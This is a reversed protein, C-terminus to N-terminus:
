AKGVAGDREGWVFECGAQREGGGRWLRQADADAQDAGAAAVLSQREDQGTRNGHMMCPRHGHPSHEGSCTDPVTDAEEGRGVRASCSSGVYQADERHREPQLREEAACTRWRRARAGVCPDATDVGTSCPQPRFVPTWGARGDRAAKARAISMTDRSTLRMMETSTGDSIPFTRWGAWSGVDRGVCAAWVWVQAVWELRNHSAAGTCAMRSSTGPAAPKTARCLTGSDSNLVAFRAKMTHCTSDLACDTHSHRQPSSWLLVSFSHAPPSSQKMATGPQGGSGRGGQIMAVAKVTIASRQAGCQTCHHVLGKHANDVHQQERGGLM